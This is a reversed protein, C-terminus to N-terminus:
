CLSMYVGSSALFIFQRLLHQTDLPKDTRLGSVLQLALDNLDREVCAPLPLSKSKEYLNDWTHLDDLNMRKLSAKPQYSQKSTEESEPSSRSRISLFKRVKPAPSTQKDHLLSSHIM